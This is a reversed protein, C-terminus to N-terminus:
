AHRIRPDLVSYLIDVLVNIAVYAAAIIVVVAQITPYNRLYISKTLLTGIGPISFMVEMIVTGGILTGVNIGFVTLLSFSSPRLAHQVLVRWTPLGKARAMLIFDEQLTAVMDSRLLRLYVASIGMALAVAPIILTSINKWIGESAAAYVSQVMNLSSVFILILFIALVFNPVALFLFSASTIARDGLRNERYASYIGLPVAMLLALISAMVMLELTPPLAHAITPWVAQPQSEFTIGFDGHIAGGAWRFYRKVVPEDLHLRHNMIDGAIACRDAKCVSLVAGPSETHRPHVKSAPLAACDVKKGLFQNGCPVMQNVSNQLIIVTPDGPIQHSLVFTLFSVAIVAGVFRLLKTAIQQALRVSRRGEDTRRRQRSRDAL